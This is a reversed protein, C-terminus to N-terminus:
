SAHRLHLLIDAMYLQCAHTFITRDKSMSRAVVDRTGRSGKRAYYAVTPRRGEKRDSKTLAGCRRGHAHSWAFSGRRQEEKPNIQEHVESATSVPGADQYAMDLPLATAASAAAGASSDPDEDDQGPSGAAGFALVGKGLMASLLPTSESRGSSEAMEAVIEQCGEASLSVPAYGIRDWVDGSDSLDRSDRLRRRKRERAPAERRGLEIM